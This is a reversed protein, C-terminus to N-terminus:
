TDGGELELLQETQKPMQSIDSGQAESVNSHM